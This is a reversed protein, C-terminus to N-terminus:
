AKGYARERDAKRRKEDCTLCIYDHGREILVPQQQGCAACMGRRIRSVDQISRGRRWRRIHARQGPNRNTTDHKDSM